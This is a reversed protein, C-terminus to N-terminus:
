LPGSRRLATPRIPIHRKYGLRISANPARRTLNFHQDDLKLRTPHVDSSRVCTLLRTM